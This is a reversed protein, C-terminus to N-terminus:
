IQDLHVTSFVATSKGYFPVHEWKRFPTFLKTIEEHGLHDPEEALARLFRQLGEPGKGEIFQLLKLVRWRNSLEVNLLVDNEDDTLLHQQNLYPLLSELKIYQALDPQHHRLVIKADTCNYWQENDIISLSLSIYIYMYM